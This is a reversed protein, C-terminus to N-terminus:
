NLSMDIDEGRVSFFISYGKLISFLCLILGSFEQPAGNGKTNTKVEFFVFCPSIFYEVM